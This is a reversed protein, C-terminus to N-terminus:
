WSQNIHNGGTKHITDYTDHTTPLNIPVLGRCVIHMPDTISESHICTSAHPEKFARLRVPVGRTHGARRKMEPLRPGSLLGQRCFGAFLRHQDVYSGPNTIYRARKELNCQIVKYQSYKNAICQVPWLCTIGPGYSAPSFRHFEALHTRDIAKTESSV